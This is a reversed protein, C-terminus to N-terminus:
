LKVISTSLSYDGKLMLYYIGSQVSDNLCFDIQKCNVFSQNIIVKGSIDTVKLQGTSIKPLSITFREKSPNPFIEIPNYSHKENATLTSTGDWFAIAYEGPQLHEIVFSGTVFHANTGKKIIQWQYGCNKRYLLLLTDTPGPTYNGPPNTNTNYQYSFRGSADFGMPFIGDIKWYNLNSMVVGPKFNILSDAPIWNNIVQVIAKNQVSKTNLSFNCNSFPLNGTKTIEKIDSTTADAVQQDINLLVAIPKVPLNIKILQREGNFILLTDIRSYNETILTIPIKNQNAMFNRAKCKQRTWLKLNFSNQLPEVVFSDISYHPFGPQYVWNDFFPELETGTAQSMIRCLDASNASNFNKESLYAKVGKFFLSDGLYNRLTHVVDAGKNYAHAGYTVQQPLKNLPYYGGDVKALSLLVGYHNQLIHDLAKQRDFVQELFLSECYSAWGENLWMEASSECTVLNGFWHHSLEHAALIMNDDSGQLANSPFAINTAHEMAGADFPVVVYGARDWAYPGFYNEFAALSADLNKFTKVANLSDAEDVYVSWPIDREMGHYIGQIEIYKGVAVSSLYTPISEHLQWKWTTTVPGMSVDNLLGDCVATFGPKTKVTFDYTARDTFNDICPYWFRGVGNPNSGMGVNIAFAYDDTIFFGGWVPDKQPKGHYYIDVTFTDTTEIKYDIRLLSDNFHFSTVKNMVLVSDTTLKFLDLVFTNSPNIPKINLTAHGYITRTTLQSLDLNLSYHCVDISDRHSQGYLSSAWIFLAIILINRM